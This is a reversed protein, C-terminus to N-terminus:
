EPEQYGVLIGNISGIILDLHIKVPINNGDNTFWTTMDDENRFFRGAVTSSKFRLCNIKGYMTNISDNGEYRIKLDWVEDGLYTPIVVEQQDAVSQRICNKRFHFYGTLIDHINKPVSKEGSMNSYIISSDERSTHDFFVESYFRARGDVLLIYTKDPLGTEPQMCTEFCYDLSTFIRAMGISRAEAKIHHGCHLSDEIFSITAKGVNFIGFRLIYHMTEGGYQPVEPMKGRSMSIMGSFLIFFMSIRIM